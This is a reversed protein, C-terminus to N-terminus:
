SPVAPPAPAWYDAAWALQVPRGPASWALLDRLLREYRVGVGHTALLSIVHRLRLPLDGPRADLLAAFRGDLSAAATRRALRCSAGLTAETAVRWPQDSKGAHLAYLTATLLYADRQGAPVGGLAEGIDRYALPPVDRRFAASRLRALRARATGDGATAALSLGYLVKAFREPPELPPADTATM